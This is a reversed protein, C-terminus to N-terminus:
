IIKDVIWFIKMPFNINRMRFWNVITILNILFFNKQFPKPNEIKKYLNNRRELERCSLCSIDNCLTLTPNKKLLDVMAILTENAPALIANAIGIKGDIILGKKRLMPVIVNLNKVCGSYNKEIFLKINGDDGKYLVGRWSPANELLGAQKQVEHRITILNDGLGIFLMKGNIKSLLLYPLFTNSNVDHNKTLYKAYKGIATVSGIPHKSRISNKRKRFIEPVIGVHYSPTSKHDFIYSVRRFKLETIPFARTFTNMMVTGNSGVVELLADIFTDPGGDINGISKFSLSVSLQDGNKIGIKKIDIILQEKSIKNYSTIHVNDRNEMGVM